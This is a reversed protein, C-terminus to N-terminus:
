SSHLERIPGLIEMEYIDVNRWHNEGVVRQRDWRKLREGNASDICVMHNTTRRLDKAMREAAEFSDVERVEFDDGMNTRFLVTYLPADIDALILKTACNSNIAIGIKENRASNCSNSPIDSNTADIETNKMAIIEKFLRKSATFM